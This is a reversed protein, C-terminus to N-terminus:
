ARKARQLRIPQGQENLLSEKDLGRGMIRPGDGVRTHILRRVAGADQVPIVNQNFSSPLGSPLGLAEQAGRHSSGAGKGLLDFQEFSDM